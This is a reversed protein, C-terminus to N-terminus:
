SPCAGSASLDYAQSPDFGSDLLGLEKLQGDLEQWRAASMCGIPQQAPAVLGDRLQAVAADYVQADLQQNLALLDPKITDPRELFGQWGAQLAAVTAKVLEPQERIVTDTTFVVSYPRYGLDAVKLQQVAIDAAQMRAPLFLYLGQQVLGPDNRFLTLDGSVPIEREPKIQYRKKIWEWYGAGLSVAFRRGDLDKIGQVGPTPHYVLTYPVHDLSAFVAKVPVGKQRALLIDDANALGFHAQGATVQPITQIRPGGQRVSVRLASQASDHQAQWLGGQDPQAFWNTLINVQQPSQAQAATFAFLTALGLASFLTRAMM